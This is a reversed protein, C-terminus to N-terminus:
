RKKALDFDQHCPPTIPKTKPIIIEKIKETVKTKKM